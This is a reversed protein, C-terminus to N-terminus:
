SDILTGSVGVRAPQVELSCGLDEALARMFEEASDRSFVGDLPFTDVHDHDLVHLSGDLRLWMLTM